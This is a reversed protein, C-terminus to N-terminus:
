GVAEMKSAILAQSSDVPLAWAGIRDHRLTFSRVELPDTILRGGGCAETYVVDGTDTTMIKFSGELGFHWGVTKPVVRLTVHHSTSLDLLKSLQGKMVEPSGVRHDLVGEDLLVWVTPPDPKDLAEQRSMRSTLEAEVETDKLGAATFSARAYEPTQLLGPVVALEYIKLVSARAEHELHQKFWDPDHGARAFTLLRLFHGGTDWHRDLIRAEQETIRRRGAECNSVSGRSRGMIRGLQALSLGHKERYFRLDYALWSWLSSNPDISEAVSM